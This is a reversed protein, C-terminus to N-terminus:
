WNFELSELTPDFGCHEKNKKRANSGVLTLISVNELLILILACLLTSITYFASVHVKCSAMGDKKQGMSSLM